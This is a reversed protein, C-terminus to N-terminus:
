HFDKSLKNIKEVPHLSFEVLDNDLKDSLTKFGSSIVYNFIVTKDKKSLNTGKEFVSDILAITEPYLSFRKQIAKGNEEDLWITQKESAKADVIRLDFGLDMCLSNFTEEDFDFPAQTEYDYLSMYFLEAYKDAYKFQEARSLAKFEDITMKHETNYM